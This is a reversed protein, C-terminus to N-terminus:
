GEDKMRREEEEKGPEIGVEDFLPLDAFRGTRMGWMTHVVRTVVIGATFGVVFAWSHSEILGWRQLEYMLGMAIVYYLPSLIAREFQILSADHFFSRKHKRKASKKWSPHWHNAIWHLAYYIAIDVVMDIAGAALTILFRHERGIAEGVLYVPYKAIVVALLGSAVINANINVVRKRQYLDIHHRPM